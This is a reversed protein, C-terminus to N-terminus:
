EVGKGIRQIRAQTHLKSQEERPSQLLQNLRSSVVYIADGRRVATTPYADGLPQEAVVRASGWGDSSLLSFARNAKTSPTQNAVIVLNKSGLLTLGDGGVFARETRVKSFRTPAALPVKFLSGDSKKIV